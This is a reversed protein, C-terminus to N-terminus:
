YRHSRMYRGYARENKENRYDIRKNRLFERKAARRERREQRQAKSMKKVRGM